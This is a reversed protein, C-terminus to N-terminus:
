NSEIFQYDLRIRGADDMLLVDSGISLTTRDQKRRMAWRFRVIDHHGSVEDVLLFECGSDRVWREYAGRLRAEIAVHGRAEMSPTRHIADEGWLAAMARRRRQPDSENWLAVYSEALSKLASM